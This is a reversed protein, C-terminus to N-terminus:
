QPIRRLLSWVVAVAAPALIVFGSVPGVIQGPTLIVGTSLQSITQATM